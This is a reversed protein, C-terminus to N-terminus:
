ALGHRVAVAAAAARSEVGLKGLLNSVHFGATRPSISLAQAIGRDSAGAALFRLVERERKTLGFSGGTMPGTAETPVHVGLAEEIFSRLPLDEGALWAAAFAAPALAAKAAELGRQYARRDWGAVTAGLRTRHASAAGFLRAGLAAEGCLAALIALGTLAETLLRRDGHVRGLAVAERYHALAEPYEGRNRALDGLACITDALGWTFGLARQRSLAQGLYNRATVDDGQIVAIGGRNAYAISTWRLGADGVPAVAEFRQLSQEARKAAQPLEGRQLHVSAVGLLAVAELGADTVARAVDVADLLLPEAAATDGQLVAVWGVSALAGARAVSPVPTARDLARELWRRGEGLQGRLIWFDGMARALRLGLDSAGAADAWTLAARVNEQELGLQSLSSGFAPSFIGANAREVFELVHGAHAAQVAPAEGSVELRERGFERITELMRYRPEVAASDDIPQVLSNEVLTQIIDLMTHSPPLRFRPGHDRDDSLIKCVAEAAGLEFGGAFVALRAFLTQEPPSLLDYSWAVAARMTRLRDPRDRAGGTLLPLARDLRALLAAPPLAVIRAAALEIALPLGDLRTCIAAVAAANTSTLAFGARAARARTVFLQVAEATPMPMVPADHEASLRLVVRSTALVKLRSCQTLLDAVLPAAEVVQEFNDLVLLFHRRRLHAALQGVLLRTGSDVVGLAMAITPLVLSPDRLAALDVFRAGDAFAPAVEAAVQLALRTKGVGGPGTLTVLPVDDRLLLDAVAELDHRRGILPTRPLPVAELDLGRGDGIGDHEADTSPWADPAPAHTASPADGM